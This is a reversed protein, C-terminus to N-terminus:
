KKLQQYTDHNIKMPYKMVAKHDADWVFVFPSDREKLLIIEKDIRGYFVGDVVLSDPLMPVKVTYRSSPKQAALAEPMISFTSQNAGAPKAMELVPELRKLYECGQWVSGSAMVLIPLATKWNALLYYIGSAVFMFAEFPSSCQKIEIRM